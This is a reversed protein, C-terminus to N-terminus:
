NFGDDELDEEKKGKKKPKEPKKPDDQTGGSPAEDEWKIIFRGETDKKKEDRRQEKTLSDKKFWGFETSLVQKLNQKESKLNEKVTQVAAKRDYKIVPNDVTGTMSFCLSMKREGGDDVEEGFESNEQKAAKARKALLESLRICFHYDINNSFDHTGSMSLNMASSQIENKPIIIKKNKIEIENEWKSFTIHDFDSMKMYKSLQKMPAFNNLEGQDIAITTRAYIKSLDAVLKDSWVSAFQVTATLKGKLNNNTLTTQGFNNFSWFLKSIDVSSTSADCTILLTDGKTGDIMGSGSISGDMTKFSVPDVILKRNRINLDGSVDSAQFRGLQVQGVTSALHMRLHPSLQLRYATDANQATGTQDQILPDLLLKNSHLKADVVLDEDKVCVWALLNKFTGDLSFDSGALMGTFSSIQVDPGNFSFNGNLQDFKMPSKKLHLTAGSLSSSGSASFSKFDNASLGSMGPLKGSIDVDTFALAGTLTEITDLKLFEKWDSLQQKADLHLSVSPHDFNDLRFNGNISGNKLTCSFPQLAFFSKGPEDSFDGKLVVNTLKMDSGSKWIKGGNRIGFSAKVVPSETASYNGKITSNFYFEGESEFGQLNKRWVPPLLSLTSQADLKDGTATLDINVAKGANQVSGAVSVGFGSLKLGCRQLTYKENKADVHVVVDVLGTQESLYTIDHSRYHHLNVNVNTELDYEDSGFKGSLAAKVLDVNLNDNSKRNAYIVKINNLRIDELAFQVRATDTKGTDASAKLFHFNDRGNKDVWMNLKVDEVGISHIRYNKRFLDLLNFKLDIRGAKFLTDRNKDTTADLAKVNRFELALSPFTRIVTLDIDDPAVIVQTNLRKNVEAVIYKKVEDRYIWALLVALLILFVFSGSLWFFWRILRKWWPRKKKKPEDFSEPRPPVVPHITAEM